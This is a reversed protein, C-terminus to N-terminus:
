YISTTILAFWKNKLLTEAIFFLCFISIAFLLLQFLKQAILAKEKNLILRFMFYSVGYGPTRIVSNYKELDNEYFSGHEVLRDYTKIYGDDDATEITEGLRVKEPAEKKVHHLNLENVFFAVMFSLIALLIAIKNSSM